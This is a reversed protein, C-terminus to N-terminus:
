GPLGARRLVMIVCRTEDECIRTRSRVLCWAMHSPSAGVIRCHFHLRTQGVVWARFASADAILPIPHRPREANICNICLGRARHPGGCRGCLKM